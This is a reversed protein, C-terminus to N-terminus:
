LAPKKTIEDPGTQCRKADGLVEKRPIDALEVAPVDLTLGRPRRLYRGCVEADILTCFGAGDPNVCRSAGSPACILAL